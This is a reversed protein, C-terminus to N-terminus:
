FLVGRIARMLEERGLSGKISYPVIPIHPNALAHMIKNQRKKRDTNKLKDMKTLVLIVPLSREKAWSLLHLEEEKLDRRCDVLQLLLKLEDRGEFYERIMEGWREKFALPVKAYGYGPLDVLSVFGDCAFFNLAQTKGPRSCVKALAYSGVLHNLLSSKGVNSRGILAIEVGNRAIVPYDEYSCATKIFRPNSFIPKM